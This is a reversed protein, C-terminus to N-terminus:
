PCKLIQRQEFTTNPNACLAQKDFWPGNDAQPQTQTQTQPQAQTSTTVPVPDDGFWSGIEQLGALIMWGGIFLVALFAGGGLMISALTMARDGGGTVEKSKGFLISVLLLGFVVLAGIGAWHWATLGSLSSFWTGAHGAGKASGDVVWQIFEPGTMAHDPVKGNPDKVKSLFTVLVITAVMPLTVFWNYAKLARIVEKDGLYSQNVLTFGFLRGIGALVVVTLMVRAIPDAQFWNLPVILGALTLFFLAIRRGLDKFGDDSLNKFGPLNRLLNLVHQIVPFPWTIAFGLVGGIAACYIGILWVQDSMMWGLGLVLTASVLLTALVPIYKYWKGKKSKKGKSSIYGCAGYGLASAALLAPAFVPIGTTPLIIGLILFVLAAIITYLWWRAGTMVWPASGSLIEGVQKIVGPAADLGKRAQTTLSQEGELTIDIEDRIRSLLTRIPRCQAATYTATGHLPFRAVDDKFRGLRRNVWEPEPKQTKMKQVLDEIEQRELATLKLAKMSLVDILWSLVNDVRPSIRSEWSPKPKLLRMIAEAEEMPFRKLSFLNRQAAELPSVPGIVMRRKAPPGKVQRTQKGDKGTKETRTTPKTYDDLNYDALVEPNTPVPNGWEDVLVSGDPNRLPLILRWSGDHYFFFIGDMSGRRDAPPISAPNTVRDVAENGVIELADTTADTAGVILPGIRKLIERMAVTYPRSDGPWLEDAHEALLEGGASFLVNSALNFGPIGLISRLIRRAATNQDLNNRLAEEILPQTVQEFARKFAAQELQRLFRAM